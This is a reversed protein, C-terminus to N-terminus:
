EAGDRQLSSVGAQQHLPHRGNIGFARTPLLDRSTTPPRFLLGSPMERDHRQM